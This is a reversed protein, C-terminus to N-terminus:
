WAIPSSLTRRVPNFVRVPGLLGSELLPENAKYFQWTAFTTRGGAPKPEGRAYWDPLRIINHREGDYQNEEPLLEDGILRNPLLTTVRVELRNEGPKVLDTVDVRYPPKWLDGADRDNVRVEAIVEVRGLDVYVRRGDGFSEPSLQFVNSYTATGSFYRVGPDSHHHLSALETMTITAPAARGPPFSVQWPGILTVPRPVEVKSSKGTGLRYTGSQWLLADVEGDTRLSLEASQAEDPSPLDLSAMSQIRVATLPESFVEPKTMEGEFYNVIGAPTPVGVAPHVALGSTLGHRVFKGNVYLAPKGNEYVVALHSWGSLPVNAVLVAPSANSSREVVYVGNRGAALGMLAHGHGFVSDGERAALVYNKGTEDIRGTTSERPMARLDTDPKVWLAVTFSNSTGLLTVPKEARFPRAEIIRKGDRSLSQAAAGGDSERLVVFVSQAPGLHIPLRLRRDEASFIAARRIKGTEADWIEPQRGAARFTCVIDDVRRQRNAVFYIDADDLRRHAWAVSADPNRSSYEFDPAIALQRLVRTLPAESFVRGDGHADGEANKSGTWLDSAIRHFRRDADSGGRLTLSFVPKPGVLIMGDAVLEDLKRMLEPTMGALDPPLLLVRYSAGEPLVIRGNRIKVRRLLVDANVLDYTYGSPVGPVTYQAAEPTREGVFALIDAVFTGQQLLYQSRALYDMWGKSKEFWTNMRDLHIGWPGMTMGPFADPHPQHAYRHFFAQNFGLSFMLDGLPKLAYPHELWRSTQEEGTFAEAAVIPKGYIHAASSVSKVVRNPGWPTRAWFETMPVQAKSTVEFEDYPGPGYPEVYYKLGNRRCLAAFHGYYNEAMLRAHTRRVDFLFRDSIGADGVIRGTMAPLYPVIDYGNQKRFERPFDGTWNQMEAEYSDISLGVFSKRGTAGIKKLVTEQVAQFHKETAERSFKDCELGHGAEPAAINRQGTSTYGLRLIVWSGPPVDWKLRGNGDMRSSIDRVQKPDLAISGEQEVPATTSRPIRFAFNGRYNWDDVRPLHHLALEALTTEGQTSVRFYKARVPPFNNVGPFEIGRPPSLRVQFVPQYNTGDDSAELNVRRTPAGAATYVTIGRAEFPEEFEFILPNRPSLEIGTKLNGDSLDTINVDRGQATAVHKLRDQYPREEGPLAPFALVFADRYFAEKTYPQLLHTEVPGPGAITTETWVLQKMSDEPKIWPGGSSSWGPSNHMGLQLGLREAERAAHTMLELWEASLYDVPGRPIYIGGEFILAGGLGVRKMAELDRTIGDRTINGNMWYWFTQPRASLPPNQFGSQLEDLKPSALASSAILLLHVFSGRFPTQITKLSSM